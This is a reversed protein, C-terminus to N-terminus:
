DDLDINFMDYIIDNRDRDLWDAIFRQRDVINETKNCHRPDTAMLEADYRLRAIVTDLVRNIVEKDHNTLYDDLKM